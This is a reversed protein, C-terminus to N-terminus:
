QSVQWVLEQTWTTGCKPFTVCWVDNPRVQLGRYFPLLAATAPLLTWDGPRCRVLGDRYGRCEAKVAANDEVEEWM